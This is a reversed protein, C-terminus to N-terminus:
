QLLSTLMNFSILTTNSDQSKSISKELQSFRPGDRSSAVQNTYIENSQTQAYVSPGDWEADGKKKACTAKATKERDRRWDTAIKKKKKWEEWSKPLSCDTNQIYADDRALCSVRRGMQARGQGRWKMKKNAGGGRREIERNQRTFPLATFKNYTSFKKEKKKGNKISEYIIVTQLTYSVWQCHAATYSKFDLIHPNLPEPILLFNYVEIAKENAAFLPIACRDYPSM